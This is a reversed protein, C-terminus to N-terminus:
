DLVKVFHRCGKHRVYSAVRVPCSENTSLRLHCSLPQLAYAYQVNSIPQFNEENFVKALVQYFLAFDLCFLSFMSFLRLQRIYCLINVMSIRCLFMKEILSLGGVGFTHELDM